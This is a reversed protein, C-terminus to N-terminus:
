TGTQLFALMDEDLSGDDNFVSIEEEDNTIAYLPYPGRANLPRLLQVPEGRILLVVNQLTLGGGGWDQEIQFLNEDDSHQLCDEMGLNELQIYLQGYCKLLSAENFLDRPIVRKYSM